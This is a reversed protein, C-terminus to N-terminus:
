LQGKYMEQDVIVPDFHRGRETQLLDFVRDLEWAKKHVRDSCLADFVDAIIAAAFTSKKTHFALEIEGLVEQPVVDRAKQDSSAAYDGSAALVYIDEVGKSTMQTLVGSAFKKMSQLEFLTASSKIIEELGSWSKEITKIDRYSRLATVVTTFM